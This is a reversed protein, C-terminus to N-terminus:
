RGRTGRQWTATRGEGDRRWTPRRGVGRERVARCGSRPAHHAPAALSRLADANYDTVHLGYECARPNADLRVAYYWDM